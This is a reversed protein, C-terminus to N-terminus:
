GPIPEEKADLGVELIVRRCVETLEGLPELHVPAQRTRAGLLPDRDEDGPVVM